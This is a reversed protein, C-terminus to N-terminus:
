RDGAGPRIQSRIEQAEVEIAEAKAIAGAARLTRAYRELAVAMSLDHARDNGRLIELEREHLATAEDFRGQAALLEELPRLVWGLLVSDRGASAEVLNLAELLEREAEVQRGSAQYHAALRRKRLADPFAGEPRGEGAARLLQRAEEHRGVRDYLSSLNHLDQRTPSLRLKEEYAAIAEEYEGREFYLMGLWSLFESRCGDEECRSIGERWSREAEQWRGRSYEERGSLLLSAPGESAGAVTLVGRAVPPLSLALALAFVPTALLNM